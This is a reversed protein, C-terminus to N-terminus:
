CSLWVSTCSSSSGATTTISSGTECDNPCRECGEVSVSVVQGPALCRTPRRARGASRADRGPARRGPPVTWGAALVRRPPAAGPLGAAVASPQAATCRFPDVLVMNRVRFTGHGLVDVLRDLQGTGRGIADLVRHTAGDLPGALGQVVEAPERHLLDAAVELVSLDRVPLHRQLDPERQVLSPSSRGGSAPRTFP